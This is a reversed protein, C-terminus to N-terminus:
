KNECYNKNKIGLESVLRDVRDGLIINRDVLRYAIENSLCNTIM